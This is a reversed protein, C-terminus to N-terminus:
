SLHRLRLTEPAGEALSLFGLWSRGEKALRGTAEPGREACLTTSFWLIWLLLGLLALLFVRFSM